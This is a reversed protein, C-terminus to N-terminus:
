KKREKKLVRILAQITRSLHTVEDALVELMAKIDEKDQPEEPPTYGTGIPLVKTDDTM